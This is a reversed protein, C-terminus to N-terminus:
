RSISDYYGFEKRLTLTSPIIKRTPTIINECSFKRVFSNGHIQALKQYATLCAPSIINQLKLYNNLLLIM